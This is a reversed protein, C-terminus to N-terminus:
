TSNACSWRVSHSFIMRTRVHKAEKAAAKCITCVFPKMRLLHPVLDPGQDDIGGADEADRVCRLTRVLIM